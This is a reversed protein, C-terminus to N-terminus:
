KEKRVVIACIVSVSFILLVVLATEFLLGETSESTVTADFAFYAISTIIAVFLSFLFLFIKIFERM